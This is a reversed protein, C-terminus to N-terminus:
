GIRYWSRQVADYILRFFGAAALTTPAGSVSTAGNGSVTLTAVAQTCHVVVQQDHACTSVEPLTITGAAYGALPTILLRVSGGAVAPAVTVTFGTASPSAYQSSLDTAATLQEQLWQQLVDLTAAADNGLTQSYLAIRDTSSLEAVVGLRDISPM